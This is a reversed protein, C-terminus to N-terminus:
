YPLQFNEFSYLANVKCSTTPFNTSVNTPYVLWKSQHGTNDLLLKAMGLKTPSTIPVGNESLFDKIERGGPHETWRGPQDSIM